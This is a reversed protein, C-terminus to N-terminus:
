GKKEHNWCEVLRKKLYDMDSESLNIEVTISSSEDIITLVGGDINVDLELDDSEFEMKM